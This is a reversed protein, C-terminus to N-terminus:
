QYTVIVHSTPIRGHHEEDRSRKCRIIQLALSHHTKGRKTGELSGIYEFKGFKLGCHGREKERIVLLGKM